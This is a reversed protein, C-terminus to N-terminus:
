LNEHSTYGDGSSSRQDHYDDLEKFLSLNRELKGIERESRGLGCQGEVSWGDKSM